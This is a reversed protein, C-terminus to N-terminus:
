RSGMESNAQSVPLRSPTKIASNLARKGDSINVNIVEFRDIVLKSM